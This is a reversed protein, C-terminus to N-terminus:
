KVDENARTIWSAERSRRKLVLLLTSGFGTEVMEQLGNGNDSSLTTKACIRSAQVEVIHSHRGFDEGSKRLNSTSRKTELSLKRRGSSTENSVAEGLVPALDAATEFAAM